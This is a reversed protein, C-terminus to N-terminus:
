RTGEFTYEVSLDRIDGKFDDTVPLKYLHLRTPGFCDIQIPYNITILSDELSVEYFQKACSVGGFEISLEVNEQGNVREVSFKEAPLEAPVQAMAATSFLTVTSLISLMANKM